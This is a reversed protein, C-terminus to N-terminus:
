KAVTHGLKECIECVISRRKKTSTPAIVDKMLAHMADKDGKQEEMRSALGPILTNLCLDDDIKPEKNNDVNTTL